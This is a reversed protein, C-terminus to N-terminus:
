PSCYPPEKFVLVSSSCSVAIASSSMYGSFFIIQFSAPIAASVAASDVVALVHSCGLRGGVFSHTFFICCLYVTSYYEAMVFFSIIGDTSVPIPLTM